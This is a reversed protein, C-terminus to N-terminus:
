ITLKLLGRYPYCLSQADRVTQGPVTYSWKEKYQLGTFILLLKKIIPERFILHANPHRTHQAVEPDEGPRDQGGDEYEGDDYWREDVSSWVMSFTRQPPPGFFIRWLSQVAFFWHRFNSVYIGLFPVAHGCDWNGCEQTKSRNIYEM